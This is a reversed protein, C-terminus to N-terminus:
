PLVEFGVRLGVWHLFTHTTGNAMEIREAPNWSRDARLKPTSRNATCPQVPAAGVLRHQKNEEIDGVPYAMSDAAPM